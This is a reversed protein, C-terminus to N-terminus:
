IGQKGDSTSQNFLAKRRDFYLSASGEFRVDLRRDDGRRESALATWLVATMARDIQRQAIIYEKTEPGPDATHLAIAMLCDQVTDFSLFRVYELHVRASVRPNSDYLLDSVELTGLRIQNHFVAFRRGYRPSDVFDLSLQTDSLEQLRWPGGGAVETLWQNVVDAFDAFDNFFQYVHDDVRWAGRDLPPPREHVPTIPESHLLQNVFKTKLGAPRLVAIRWLAITALVNFAVIVGVVGLTM